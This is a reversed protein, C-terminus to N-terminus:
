ILGLNTKCYSRLKDENGVVSLVKDFFYECNLTDKLFDHISIDIDAQVLHHRLIKSNNHIIYTVLFRVEDAIKSQAIAPIAHKETTSLVLM